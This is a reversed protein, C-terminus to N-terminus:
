VTLALSLALGQIAGFIHEGKPWYGAGFISYALFYSIPMLIGVSVALAAALWIPTVGFAALAILIPAYWYFGRIMLALIAYNRFDRDERFVKNAMWHIGNSKGDKRTFLDSSNYAEQSYATSNWQPVTNLWKGWGFSEGAIYLATVTASAYLNYTSLYVALGVIVGVPFPGWSLVGRPYRNLIGM